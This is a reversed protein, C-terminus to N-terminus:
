PIKGQHEQFLLMIVQIKTRLEQLLMVIAQITNRLEQIPMMIARVNNRLEQIIMMIVQTKDVQLEQIRGKLPSTAQMAQRKVGQAGQLAQLMPTDNIPAFSFNRWNNAWQQWCAKLIQKNNNSIRTKNAFNKSPTTSDRKSGQSLMARRKDNCGYTIGQPMSKMMKSTIRPEVMQAM